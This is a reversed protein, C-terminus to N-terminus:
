TLLGSCTFLVDFMCACPICTRFLCVHVSVYQRHPLEINRHMYMFARRNSLSITLCSTKIILNSQKTVARTCSIICCSVRHRKVIRSVDRQNVWPALRLPSGRSGSRSGSPVRRCPPATEPSKTPPYTPSITVIVSVKCCKLEMM